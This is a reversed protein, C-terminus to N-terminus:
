HNTLPISIFHQFLVLPLFDPDPALFILKESFKAYTSFSHDRSFLEGYINHLFM